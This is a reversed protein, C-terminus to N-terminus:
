MILIDFSIYISFVSVLVFIFVYIHYYGNVIVLVEVLTPMVMLSFGYTTKPYPESMQFTRVVALRPVRPM